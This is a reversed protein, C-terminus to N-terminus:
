PLQEGCHPCRKIKHSKPLDNMDAYVVGRNIYAVLERFPLKKHPYTWGGIFGVGNVSAYCTRMDSSAGYHVELHNGNDDVVVIKGEELSARYNHTGRTVDHRCRGTLFDDSSVTRITKLRM